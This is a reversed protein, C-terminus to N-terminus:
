IESGKKKKDSSESSYAHDGTGCGGAFASNTTLSFAFLGFLVLFVKM